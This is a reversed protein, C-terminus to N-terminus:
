TSSGSTPSSSNFRQFTRPSRSWRDPITAATGPQVAGPAWCGFHILVPVRLAEVTEWLPYLERDDIRRELAPAIIKLGRLGLQQVARKMEAVADPAFPNHHAFGVFREPHRAVVRSLSDNGGGTAFAIRDIGFRDLEALWRDAQEDWPREEQEPEPFDWALRWAARHRQARVHAIHQAEPTGSIHLPQGGSSPDGKVPFHAHCDIIYLDQFV